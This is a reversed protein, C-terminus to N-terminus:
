MHTPCIQWLVCKRWKGGFEYFQREKKNNDGALVQVYNGSASGRATYTIEGGLELHSITYYGDEAPSIQWLVRRRWKGGVEYIEQDKKYNEGALVQVYNGSASEKETSTMKGGLELNSITYCGNEASSIYWLVTKRWEGGPEYFEKERLYNGGSLAQVFHGSPAEEYTYSIKGELDLNTITYYGEPLPQAEKQRKEAEERERKEIEEKRKQENEDRKLLLESKDKQLVRTRLGQELKILPHDQVQDLTTIMMRTTNMDHVMRVLNDYTIKFKTELKRQENLCVKVKELEEKLEQTKRKCVEYEDKVEKIFKEFETRREEVKKEVESSQHTRHDRLVCKGCVIRQCDECYNTTEENCSSCMGKMQSKKEDLRIVQNHHKTTFPSIGHQQFCEGCLHTECKPCWHDAERGCKIGSDCFVKSEPIKEKGLITILTEIVPERLETAANEICLTSTNCSLLCTVVIDDGERQNVQVKEKFCDLCFTHGCNALCFAKEFVQSCFYCHFSFSSSVQISTTPTNM